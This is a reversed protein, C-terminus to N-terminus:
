VGGREERPWWPTEKNDDVYLAVWEREKSSLHYLRIFVAEAEEYIYLEAFRGRIVEFSSTGSDTIRGGSIEGVILEGRAAYGEAVTRVAQWVPEYQGVEFFASGVAYPGERTLRHERAMGAVGDMMEEVVGM